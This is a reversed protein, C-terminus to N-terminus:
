KTLKSTLFSFINSCTCVVSGVCQDYRKRVSVFIVCETLRNCQRKQKINLFLLLIGSQHFYLLHCHQFFIAEKFSFSKSNKCNENKCIRLLSIKYITLTVFCICQFCTSRLYSALTQSTSFGPPGNKKGVRPSQPRFLIPFWWLHRKRGEDKEVEPEWRGRVYEGKLAENQSRKYDESLICESWFSFVQSHKSTLFMTRHM